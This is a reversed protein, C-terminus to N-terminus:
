PAESDLVSAWFGGITADTSDGWGLLHDVPSTLDDSWTFTNEIPALLYELLLRVGGSKTRILNEFLVQINFLVESDITILIVAPYEEDYLPVYGPPISLLAVALIDEPTGNSRNIRIQGKIAILFDADSLNNRGRGVIAGLADLQAGEANAMLRYLIVEWTADELEQIRNTFSRSLSRLDDKNRYQELFKALARAVHDKSQTASM